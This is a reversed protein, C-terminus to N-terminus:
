PLPHCGEVEFARVFQTAEESLAHQNAATVRVIVLGGPGMLLYNTAHWTDYLLECRMVDKRCARILEKKVVHEGGAECAATLLRPLAEPAPPQAGLLHTVELFEAPGRKVSANTSNREVTVVPKEPFVTTFGADPPAWTLPRSCAALLLCTGFVVSGRSREHREPLGSSM